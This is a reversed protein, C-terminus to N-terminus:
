TGGLEGQPGKVPERLSKPNFHKRLIISTTYTRFFFHLYQNAGIEM